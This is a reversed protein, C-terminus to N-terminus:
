TTPKKINCFPVWVAQEGFDALGKEDSIPENLTDAQDNPEDPFLYSQSEPWRFPRFCNNPEPDKKFHDIYNRQPVYRAGNDESNFSPYGIDNEEFYSSDEPFEVLVYLNDRLRQMM